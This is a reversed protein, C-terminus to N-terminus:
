KLEQWLGVATTVGYKPAQEMLEELDQRTRQLHFKCHDNQVSLQYHCFLEEDQFSLPSASPPVTRTKSGKTDITIEESTLATELWIERGAWPILYDSLRTLLPVPSLFIPCSLLAAYPFTVAVPCSLTVLQHAITHLQACEPQQFDLLLGSCQQASLIHEVTSIIKGTDCSLPPIRDNLILLSGKPLNSPLNTIGSGYPSFHCAMWATNWGAPLPSSFEGSTQALYRRIAM